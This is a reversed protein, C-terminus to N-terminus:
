EPLHGMRGSGRRAQALLDGRLARRATAEDDILPTGAAPPGAAARLEPVINSRHRELLPYIKLFQHDDAELALECVVDPDDRVLDILLNTATQLRRDGRRVFHEKLKGILVGRIPRLADLTTAYAAPNADRMTVLEDAVPGAIEGWASTGHRCDLEDPPDFLCLALAAQLRDRAPRRSDRAIQWLGPTIAKRHAFLAERITLSTLPEEALMRGLLYDVQGPDHHALALSCRLRSRPDSQGEAAERRLIPVAWSHFPEIDHTIQSVQGIDASELREVLSRAKLEAFGWAGALGVIAALVGVLLAGWAHRAAAARMMAQVEASWRRRDTLLRLAAWELASPLFKGKHRECWISAFEQLRLEARGRLSKQQDQFLWARLDPILYDHTLQYYQPGEEPAPVDNELRGFLPDAPTVLRLEHDLIWMLEQFERPQASYGPLM